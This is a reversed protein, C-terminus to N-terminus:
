RGGQEGYLVVDHDQGTRPDGGLTPLAAIEALISAATRGPQKGKMEDCMVLLEVRTGEALMLPTTPRLLGAEVVATITKKVTKGEAEKFEKRRPPL